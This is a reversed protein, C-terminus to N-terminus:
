EETSAQEVLDFFERAFMLPENEIVDDADGEPFAENDNDSISILEPMSGISETDHDSDDHEEERPTFGIRALRVDRELRRVRHEVNRRRNRLTSQLIRSPLGGWGVEPAPAMAPIVNDNDSTDSSSDSSDNTTFPGRRHSTRNRSNIFTRERVTGEPLNSIPFNHQSAIEPVSMFPDERLANQCNLEAKFECNEWHMSTEAIQRTNEVVMENALKAVSAISSEINYHILGMSTKLKKATNQKPKSMGKIVVRRRKRHKKNKKNKKPNNNANANAAAGFEFIQGEELEPPKFVFRAPNTNPNPDPATNNLEGVMDGVNELNETIGKMKDAFHGVIQNTIHSVRAMRLCARKSQIKANLLDDTSSSVRSKIVNNLRRLNRNERILNRNSEGIEDWHAEMDIPSIFKKRCCPCTQNTKMWRFFCSNCFEHNCDTIVCNGLTLVTYCVSCQPKGESKEEGSEPIATSTSASKPAKKPAGPQVPTSPRSTTPTLLLSSTSTSTSAHINFEIDLQSVLDDIANQVFPHQVISEISDNVDTEQNTQPNQSM